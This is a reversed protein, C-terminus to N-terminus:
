GTRTVEFHRKWSSLFAGTLTTVKKRDTVLKCTKTPAFLKQQAYLDRCFGVSKCSAECDKRWLFLTEVSVRTEQQWRRAVAQLPISRWRSSSRKFVEFWGSLTQHGVRSGYNERWNSESGHWQHCRRSAKREIDAEAKGANRSNYLWARAVFCSGGSADHAGFWSWRCIRQAERKERPRCCFLILQM